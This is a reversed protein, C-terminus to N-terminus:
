DVYLLGASEVVRGTMKVFFFSKTLGLSQMRNSGNCCDTYRQGVSVVNAPWRGLWDCCAPFGTVVGTMVNGHLTVTRRLAICFYLEEMAMAMEMMMMMMMMAM